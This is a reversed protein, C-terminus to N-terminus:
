QGAIGKIETPITGKFQLGTSDFSFEEINLGPIDKILDNVLTGLTKTQPNVDAPVPISGVYAKDIHAEFPQTSGQVLTGEIYISKGKIQNIYTEYQKTEPAIEFVKSLNSSVVASAVIKNNDLFKVRIDTLVSNAQISANLAASIEESTVKVDLRKSGVSQYNGSFLDELSAHDAGFVIGGKQIYSQLDADTYTLNVKKASSLMGFLVALALLPVGIFTILFTWLVPHKKKQKIIKTETM